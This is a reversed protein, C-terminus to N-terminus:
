FNFSSWPWFQLFQVSPALELVLIEPIVDFLLFQLFGLINVPNAKSLFKTYHIPIEVKESDIGKMDFPTAV